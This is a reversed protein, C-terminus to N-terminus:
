NSIEPKNTIDGILEQYNKGTYVANGYIAAIRVLQPISMNESELFLPIIYLLSEVRTKSNNIPLFKINGRFIKSGKQSWLTFMGSLKDDQNIKSEVQM